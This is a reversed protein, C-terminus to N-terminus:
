TIQKNKKEQIYTYRKVTNVFRSAHENMNGGRRARQIGILTIDRLTRRANETIEIRFVVFFFM